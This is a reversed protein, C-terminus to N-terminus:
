MSIKLEEFQIFNLKKDRLHFCFLALTLAMRSLLSLFGVSVIGLPPDEVFTRFILAM